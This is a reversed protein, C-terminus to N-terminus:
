EKESKTILVDIIKRLIRTPHRTIWSSDTLELLQGQDTDIIEQLYSRSWTDHDKRKWYIWTGSKLTNSSQMYDDVSPILHPM